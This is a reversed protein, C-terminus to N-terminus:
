AAANTNERRPKFYEVRDISRNRCEREVEGRLVFASVAGATTYGAASLLRPLHPLRPADYPYGINDRVGHRTPEFGSFISAHSPATQPAPAYARNFVVGDKALADIAPTSGQTYGYVPLHDARLTDISILVLPPKSGALEPTGRSCSALSAAVWAMATATLAAALRDAASRSRSRASFIFVGSGRSM